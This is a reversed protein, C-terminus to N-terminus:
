GCSKLMCFYYIKQLIAVSIRRHAAGKCYSKCSRRNPPPTQKQDQSIGQSMFKAFTIDRSELGLGQLEQIFSSNMQAGDLNSVKGFQSYIVSSLKPHNIIFCYIGLVIIHKKFHRICTKMCLCSAKVMRVLLCSVLWLESLTDTHFCQEMVNM